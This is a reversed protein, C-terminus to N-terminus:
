FNRSYKPFARGNAFYDLYRLSQFALYVLPFFAFFSMCLLLINMALEINQNYTRDNLNNFPYVQISLISSLLMYLTFILTIWSAMCVALISAQTGDYVSLIALVGTGIMMFGVWIGKGITPWITNEQWTAALDPSEVFSIGAGNHNPNQFFPRVLAGRSIDVCTWIMSLIGLLILLAGILIPLRLHTWPRNVRTNYYANYEYPKRLGVVAATPTAQPYM